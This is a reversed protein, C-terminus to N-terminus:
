QAQTAESSLGALVFGGLLVTLMLFYRHMSDEEEITTAGCVNYHM